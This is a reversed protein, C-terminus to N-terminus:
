LLIGGKVTTTTPQANAYPSLIPIHTGDIAGACQPFGHDDKFGEIVTKLASGTPVQIYKPLLLQVIAWCVDKVLLCVTAKSVGFLHGITRYDTGTALFWLAIGLRKELVIAQRMTTDQREIASKLSDCIYLFTAHSMRFNQLWDQASFNVAVQEWWHGSRERVWLSRPPPFQLHAFTCVM